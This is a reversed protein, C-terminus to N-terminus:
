SLNVSNRINGNELFDILQDAAMVACNEEAERTSAGIHPMSIANERGVLEPRPFDSIYKVLNAVIWPQWYPKPTSLKM